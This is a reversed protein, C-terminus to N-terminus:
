TAFSYFFPQKFAFLRLICTVADTAIHSLFFQKIKWFPQLAAIPQFSCEINCPDLIIPGIGSKKELVYKIEKQPGKLELFAYPHFNDCHSM